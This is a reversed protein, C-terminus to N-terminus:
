LTEFITKVVSGKYADFVVDHFAFSEKPNLRFVIVNPKEIYSWDIPRDKQISNNLYALALLINDKFVKNVSPDSHRKDLSIERLALRAMNQPMEGGLLNLSIIVSVLVTQALLM